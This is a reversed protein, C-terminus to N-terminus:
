GPVDAPDLLGYRRWGVNLLWTRAKAVSPRPGVTGTDVGTGIAKRKWGEFWRGSSAPDVLAQAKTRVSKAHRRANLLVYRLARHVERPTPLMRSHYRDVLVPGTRRAIRNV